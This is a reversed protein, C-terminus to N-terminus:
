KAEAQKLAEELQSVIPSIIQGDTSGPKALIYFGKLALKCAETLTAYSNVARVIFAANLPNVITIYDRTNWPTPTHKAQTM